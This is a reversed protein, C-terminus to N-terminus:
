RRRRLAASRMHDRVPSLVDALAETDGRSLPQFLQRRLVETQGPLVKALLGGGLM